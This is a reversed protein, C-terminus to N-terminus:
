NNMPKYISHENAQSIGNKNHEVTIFNFYNPNFDNDLTPNCWFKCLDDSRKHNNYHYINVIFRTNPWITDFSRNVIAIRLVQCAKDICIYSPKSNETPFINELINLIKTPFESQDFKTWAIAAGYPACAIEICYFKAPGFYHKRNNVNKKCLAIAIFIKINKGYLRIILAHEFVLLLDAM